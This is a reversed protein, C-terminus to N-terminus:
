SVNQALCEERAAELMKKLEERCYKEQKSITTAEADKRKAADNAVTKYMDKLFWKPEKRAELLMSWAGRSPCELPSVKMNRYNNYVWTMDRHHDISDGLEQFRAEAAATLRQSKRGPSKLNPPKMTVYAALSPCPVADPPPPYLNWAAELARKEAEVKENFTWNEQDRVKWFNHRAAVMASNARLWENAALLRRKLELPSEPIEYDLPEDSM